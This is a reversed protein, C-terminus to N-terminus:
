YQYYDAKKLLTEAKLKGSVCQNIDSKKFVWYIDKGDRGQATELQLSVFESDKIERLSAGYDCLVQSFKEGVTKVMAATQKQQEALQKSRQEEGARDALAVDGVSDGGGGRCRAQPDFDAPDFTVNKALRPQIVDDQGVRLAPEQGHGLDREVEFEAKGEGAHSRPQRHLAISAGIMGFASHCGTDNGDQDGVGVALFM